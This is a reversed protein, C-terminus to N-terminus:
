ASGLRQLDKARQIPDKIQFPGSEALFAGKLDLWADPEDVYPAAWSEYKDFVLRPGSVDVLLNLVKGDHDILKRCFWVKSLEPELSELIRSRPVREDGIDEFSANLRRVEIEAELVSALEERLLEVLERNYAHGDEWGNRFQARYGTHANFFWDFLQQGVHFQIVVRKSGGSEDFGIRVSANLMAVRLAAVVRRAIEARSPAAQLAKAREADQAAVRDFQWLIPQSSM